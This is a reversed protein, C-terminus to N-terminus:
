KSVPTSNFQRSMLPVGMTPYALVTSDIPHIHSPTPKHDEAPEPADPLGINTVIKKISKPFVM